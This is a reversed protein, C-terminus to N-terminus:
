KLVEDETVMALRDPIGYHPLGKFQVDLSRAYPTGKAFGTVMGTSVTGNM